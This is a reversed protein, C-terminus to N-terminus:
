VSQEILLWPDLDGTFQINGHDVFRDNLDVGNESWLSYADNHLERRILDPGEAPGRLYSSNEDHPVGLLGISATM